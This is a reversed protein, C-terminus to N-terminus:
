SSGGFYAVKRDAASNACGTTGEGGGCSMGTTELSPADSCGVGVGDDVMVVVEWLKGGLFLKDMHKVLVPVARDKGGLFFSM